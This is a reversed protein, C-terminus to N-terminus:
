DPNQTAMVMFLRPLLFATRRRQGQRKAMAELLASQVKAPARNIEDALVLNAFFRGRQSIRVRRESQRLDRERYYGVAAPRAYASDTLVPPFVTPLRKSRRPKPWLRAGRRGFRTRRGVPHHDNKEGFGESRHNQKGHIEKLRHNKDRTESM